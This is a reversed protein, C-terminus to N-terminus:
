GMPKGKTPYPLKKAPYDHLDKWSPKSVWRNSGVLLNTIRLSLLRPNVRMSSSTTTAIM